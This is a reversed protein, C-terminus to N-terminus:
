PTHHGKTKRSSNGGRIVPRPPLPPPAGTTGGQRVAAGKEGVRKMLTGTEDALGQAYSHMERMAIGPAAKAQEVKAATFEVAQRCEALWDGMARGLSTGSAAALWQFAEHVEPTVSITLRINPRHSITPTRM